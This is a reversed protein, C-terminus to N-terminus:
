PRRAHSRRPPADGAIEPDHTVVVITLGATRRCSGSSRRPDGSRHGSDSIARPSTPSCCGAARQGAARPSRWRPQQEGGRSSRPCTSRVPGGPGVAELLEGRAAPAAGAGNAPPRPRAVGRREPARDADPDPQVAPVRLGARQPAAEGLEGDGLPAWPRPGEFQSSATRRATSRASCSCCRPRGPAARGPSSSSSGPARDASQRGCLPASRRERGARLAKGSGGARLLTTTDM